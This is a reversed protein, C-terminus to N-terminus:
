VLLRESARRYVNALDGIRDVAASWGTATPLKVSPMTLGAVSHQKATRFLPLNAFTYRSLTAQLAHSPRRASHLFTTVGLLFGPNELYM